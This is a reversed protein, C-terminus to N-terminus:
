EGGQQQLGTGQDTGARIGATANESRVLDPQGDFDFDQSRRVLSETQDYIEWIDPQGDGNTDEEVRRLTGNSYFFTEEPQGDRNRDREARVAQGDQNYFWTLETGSAERERSSTLRGQADFMDVFRLTGNDAYIAKRRLQGGRYSLRAEPRGDGNGDQELVLDWGDHGYRQRREFFGDGDGDRLLKEKEGGSFFVKCDIEGDGNEDKEVRIV